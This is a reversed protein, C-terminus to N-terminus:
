LFTICSHQEGVFFIKAGKRVAFLVNPARAELFHEVTVKFLMYDFICCLFKVVVLLLIEQKKIMNQENSLLTEIVTSIVIKYWRESYTSGSNFSDILQIRSNLFSTLGLGPGNM